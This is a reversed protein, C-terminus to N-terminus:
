EVLELEVDPEVIKESEATLSQTDEGLDDLSSLVSDLLAKQREADQRLREEEARALQQEEEIIGRLLAIMRRVETEQRPSSELSLYSSYDHIASQYEGLQVRTNGRNLYVGYNVPNVELARSYQEQAEAYRELIHLNRGMAVYFLDRDRRAVGSGKQYVQIAEEREGLLEHVYGLNRYIEPDQPNQGVAAQYLPLAEAPRNYLLLEDARAKLGKEEQALICQGSLILFLM